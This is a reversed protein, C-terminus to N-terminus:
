QVILKENYVNNKTTIINLLYLGKSLSQINLQYVNNSITRHIVTQGLSNIINLEKMGVCNITLISKAPNPYISVGNLIKSKLDLNRTQSYQKKGDKDVSEIRYDVTSLGGNVTSQQSDDIFKYENYSKNNAVVKGITMFDKGNVSRQINFHSVNVENATQWVNEVFGGRVGGGSPFQGSGNTFRLEYKTFKLPVTGVSVTITDSSFCGNVVQQLVYSTTVTPHVWFGPKTSDITTNTNQIQWKLSDIGNTYSGIFVSDGLTIATDKGAYAKLCFSDLEYVAVDDAYYAAGGYGITQFIIRKTDNLLDRFNGLTLFQEGGQAKFIGSVKVWNVTDAIIPNGYNTIQPNAPLIPANNATDVYIANKTFLMSQNNCAIKSINVLNVYYEAYYYKNAKLSDILKVQFYNNIANAYFLDIYGNGTKTPQYGFGVLLPHYPVGGALATGNACANLYGGRDPKYWFNPKSIIVNAVSSNDPCNTYQEFSPNPVLNTQAKLSSNQGFSMTLFLVGVLSHKKIISLINSM